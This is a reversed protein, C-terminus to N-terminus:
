GALALGRLRHIVAGLRWSATARIFAPSDLLRGTLLVGLAFGDLTHASPYSFDMPPLDSHGYLTVQETM